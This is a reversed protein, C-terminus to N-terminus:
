LLGILIAALGLQAPTVFATVFLMSVHLSPFNPVDATVDPSLPPYLAATPLFSQLSFPYLVDEPLFSQLSFPHSTPDFVFCVLSLSAFVSSM